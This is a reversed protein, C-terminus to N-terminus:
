PWIHKQRQNSWGRTVNMIELSDCM